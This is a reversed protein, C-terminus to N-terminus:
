WLTRFRLLTAGTLIVFEEPNRWAMGECETLTIANLSNTPLPTGLWPLITSDKVSSKETM